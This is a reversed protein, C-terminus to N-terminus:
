EDFKRKRWTTSPISQKQTVHQFLIRKIRYDEQKRELAEKRFNSYEIYKECTSHCYIDRDGCDKCPANM